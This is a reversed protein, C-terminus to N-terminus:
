IVTIGDTELEDHADWREAEPGAYELALGAYPEAHVGSNCIDIEDDPVNDQHFIRDREEDAVKDLRLEVEAADFGIVTAFPDDATAARHWLSGVYVTRTPEPGAVDDDSRIIIRPGQFPRIPM